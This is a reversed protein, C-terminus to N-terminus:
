AFLGGPILWQLIIYLFLYAVLAIVANVIRAKAAATRNPDGGSSSYEIGAFVIVGLVVVGVIAGLINIAWKAILVIYNDNICSGGDCDVDNQPSPDNLTGDGLPEPTDDGGDGDGGDDGGPATPLTRGERWARCQPSNANAEFLGWGLLYCKDDQFYGAGAPGSQPAPLPTGYLPRCSALRVPRAPNGELRFCQAAAAEAKPMVLFSALSVGVILLSLVLIIPKKM